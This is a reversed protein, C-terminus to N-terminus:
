KTKINKLYKSIEIKSKWKTPNLIKSKYYRFLFMFAGKRDKKISECLKIKDDYIKAITDEAHEINYLKDVIGNTEQLISQDVKGDKVDNIVDLFEDLSYNNIINRGSFNYKYLNEITNPTCLTMCHDEGVVFSVRKLFIAEIISRGKGFVIHSNAIYDYTNDVYGHINININNKRKNIQIAKDSVVQILEGGGIIDLSIKQHKNSIEAALDMIYFVSKIVGVDLRSIMLLNIENSPKDYISCDIAPLKSISMRNSIVKIRDERYGDIVLDEKNEFSYVILNEDEFVNKNIKGGAISYLIPLGYIKSIFKSPVIGYSTAHILDPREQKIIRNLVNLGILSNRVRGTIFRPINYTRIGNETYKNQSNAYEGVAIVEHGIKRAIKAYELISLPAGGDFSGVNILIKM